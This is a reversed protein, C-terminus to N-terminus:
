SPEIYSCLDKATDDGANMGFGLHVVVSAKSGKPVASEVAINLTYGRDKDCSVLCASNGSASIIGLDRDAQSIQLGDKVLALDIRRFLQDKSTDPFTDSVTINRSSWFSGTSQLSAICAADDAHAATVSM